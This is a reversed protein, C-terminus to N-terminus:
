CFGLVKLLGNLEWHDSDTADLLSLKDVLSEALPMQTQCSDTPGNQLSGLFPPTFVELDGDLNLTKVWSFVSKGMQPLAM